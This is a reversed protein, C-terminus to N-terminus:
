ISIGLARVADLPMRKPRHTNPEINVWQTRAFVILQEKRYIEVIRPFRLGEPSEVFTKLTLQDNLLAPKKYTIYHEFVVWLENEYPTGKFKDMWAEVAIDQIWQVFVVNNVHQLNDLHSEQVKLEKTFIHLPINTMTKTQYGIM